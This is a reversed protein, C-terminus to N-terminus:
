AHTHARLTHRGRHLPGRGRSASHRQAAHRCSFPSASPHSDTRLSLLRFSSTLRHDPPTCRLAAFTSACDALPRPLPRPPRTRDKSRNGGRSQEPARVGAAMARRRRKAKRDQGSPRSHGTWSLRHVAAGFGAVIESDSRQAASAPACQQVLCRISRTHSMQRTSAHANEHTPHQHAAAAATM